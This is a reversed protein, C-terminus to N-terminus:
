NTELDTTNGGAITGAALRIRNREARRQELLAPRTVVQGLHEIRDDGCAIIRHGTAFLPHLRVM